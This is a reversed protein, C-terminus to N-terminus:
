LKVTETDSLPLGGSFPFLAVTRTLTTSTFSLSGTKTMLSYVKLMLSPRLEPVTTPVTVALSLSMELGFLLM